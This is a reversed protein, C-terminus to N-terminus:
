SIGELYAVTVKDGDLAADVYISALNVIGDDDGFLDRLSVSDGAAMVYGNTADVSSDGIYIVGTNAAPASLLLGAAWTPSSKLAVRTGATAVTSSSSKLAYRKM